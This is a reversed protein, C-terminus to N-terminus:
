NSSPIVASRWFPFSFNIKSLYLKFSQFYRVQSISEPSQPWKQFPSMLKFFKFSLTPQCLILEKGTKKALIIYTNAESPYQLGLFVPFLLLGVGFFRNLRFFLFVCFHFVLAMLVFVLCVYFNILGFPFLIEFIFGVM